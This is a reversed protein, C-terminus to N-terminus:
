RVDGRKVILRWAGGAEGPTTATNQMALWLSGKHTCLESERYSKGEAFTGAWKPLPRSEFEALRKELGEIRAQREHNRQNSQKAWLLLGLVFSSPTRGGSAKAYVSLVKDAGAEDNGEAVIYELVADITAEDLEAVPTM